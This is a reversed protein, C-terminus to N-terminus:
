KLVDLREWKQPSITMNAGISKILELQEQSVMKKEEYFIACITELALNNENVDIFEKVEEIEDESFNNRCLDLLENLKQNM